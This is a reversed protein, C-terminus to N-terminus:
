ALTRVRHIAKDCIAGAAGAQAGVAAGYLIAVTVYVDATRQDQWMLGLFSLGTEPDTVVEQRVVQPIGLQRAVDFNHNPLGTVVVAARPDFFVASNNEYRSLTHTGTGTDTVDVASGGRTAALKFTNTTADIVYYTTALSLGAPLTNSTTLRVADGNVLGHSALTCIDTTAATFTGVSSALAPLDPYEWIEKFGAVNRLMLYPTGESQQGYYDRSAIRADSDLKEMFDSNGLGYRELGAGQGNLDKRVDGLTDRDTNSITETSSYSSNGSTFKGLVYDVISKGLVYAADRINDQYTSKQSAIETLHTIKIPVHKHQDVTVPVDALLTDAATAGNAYGTTADYSAVTPLSRIHGTITGNLVVRQSTFRTSFKSLMPLQLKFADIVDTLIETVTLTAMAYGRQKAVMNGALFLTVWGVLLGATMGAPHFAAIAVVAALIMLNRLTKM